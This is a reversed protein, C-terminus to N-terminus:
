QKEKLAQNLEPKFKHVGKEKIWQLYKPDNDLVYQTKHGKYKGFDLISDLGLKWFNKDQPWDEHSM